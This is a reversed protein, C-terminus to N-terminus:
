LPPGPLTTHVLSGHPPLFQTTSRNPLQNGEHQDAEHQKERYLCKSFERDQIWDVAREERVCAAENVFGPAYVTQFSAQPGEM